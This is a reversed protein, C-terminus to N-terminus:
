NEKNVECAGKCVIVSTNALSPTGLAPRTTLTMTLRTATDTM